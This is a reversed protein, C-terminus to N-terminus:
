RKIAFAALGAATWVLVRAKRVIAVAVGATTGLGLAGTLLGTSVEEVGVRGPVFSFVMNVARNTAELTFASLLTPTFGLLDLTLWTEIVGLLHFVTECGVVKLFDSNRTRHFQFL